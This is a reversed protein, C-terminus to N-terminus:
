LGMEIEWSKFRRIMRDVQDGRLSAVDYKEEPDHYLDFLRFRQDGLHLLKWPGVRIAFENGDRWFLTRAALPEGRLLLGTLDAGDLTGEPIKRHKAALRLFTPFLDFGMVTEDIVGPKILGTWRVIAPVRHGGEWFTGKQGKLVGNSSINQHTTGYSRYGGNDSMFVVLSREDLNLRDLTELVRGVNVDLSEVMAKVHPAVNTRNPIIGWKDNWYNTGVSRHPPDDPGQWPFHIALHPLYVFFPENQNEEIFRIAHDTLLDATYGVEKINTEQQWWDPRGSRDVHTHHDGDGSTLGVFTDFGQRTPLYSTQYGLHWKGFMGTTYGAQKLAEAMTFEELPMGTQYDEKGSLPGEFSIGLRQQYRGTLLAARTPSCMSGNSHFDTFRLGEKALRDINPTRNLQSGYCGLDGYGLDDALILVINPPSQTFQDTPSTPESQDSRDVVSVPYADRLERSMQRVLRDHKKEAALNRSEGSDRVHDYLENALVEGTDFSRWETYRWRETRMSYGMVRPDTGSPPYAPRPHQTFAAPKVSADAQQLIPKLSVGELRHEPAPLGCLDVLTPYLDLLEVLSQTIQQGNRFGPASIMMPVRADLEFNSTKAWLGHESLHFGHDSWFVIITNKRLDLRDLEDLVKGIQADVYSIAAYYGHRLAKSQEQTMGEPFGRLMERSDHLALSPVGEPPLADSPLPIAERDYLDWYKKPANFPLHPKWFGVALFFPENKLRQLAKVAENAIRGDFYADDPVDRMEARPIILLDSPLNGAVTAIDDGHRAYHMRAPVSWSVPDGEFQEQRWNHFIKGINEAHHGNTKFLQPLTVIDPFHKRFHTPLDTVNLTEPRVGTLLSARSPNCVAQQCYAREFRLSTEALKDLYPSQVIPHGYCGLDARMDDVAIFLVNPRTSDAVAGLAIFAVSLFTIVRKHNM